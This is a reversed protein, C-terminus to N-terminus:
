QDGANSRWKGVPLYQEGCKLGTLRVANIASALRTLQWYVIWADQKRNMM